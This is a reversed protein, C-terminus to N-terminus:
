SAGVRLNSVVATWPLTHGNWMVSEVDVVYGGAVHRPVSRVTVRGSTIDHFVRGPKIENFKPTM